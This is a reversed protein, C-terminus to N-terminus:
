GNAIQRVRSVSLEFEQAVAHYTSMCTSGPNGVTDDFMIKIKDDRMPDPVAKPIYVTQGGFEACLKQMADRGLVHLIRQSETM